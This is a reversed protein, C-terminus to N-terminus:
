HQVVKAIMGFQRIIIYLLHDINKSGL